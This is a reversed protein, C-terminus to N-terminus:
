RVTYLEVDSIVGLRMAESHTKVPVDIRGMRELAGGTDHIVLVTRGGDPYIAMVKTGVPYEELVSAPVAVSKGPVLKDGECGYASNGCMHYGDWQELCYHSLDFTGIYEGRRPFCSRLMVTLIM